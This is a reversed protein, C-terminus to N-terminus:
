GAWLVGAGDGITITTGATVVGAKSITIVDSPRLETQAGGGVPLYQVGGSPTRLSALTTQGPPNVITSNSPWRMLFTTTTLTHPSPVTEVELVWNTSTDRRSIGITIPGGPGPGGVLGSVMVYLVAALVVMVMVVVVIVVVVILVVKGADSRQPPYYPPYPPPYPAWPQPPPQSPPPQSPQ